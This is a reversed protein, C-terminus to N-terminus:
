ILNAVKGKRKFILILVNLIIFFVFHLHKSGFLEWSKMSNELYIIFYLHTNDIM